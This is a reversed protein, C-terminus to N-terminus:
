QMSIGKVTPEEVILNPPKQQNQPSYMRTAVSYKPSCIFPVDAAYDFSPASVKGFENLIDLRRESAHLNHDVVFLTVNLSDVM